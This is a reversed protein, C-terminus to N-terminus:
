EQEGPADLVRRGHRTIAIEDMEKQERRGEEVKWEDMRRDKLKDLSNRDQVAESYDRVSEVLREDAEQCVEDAAQVKEEMKELLYEMNLLHGISGGQRHAEALKARGAQQIELLDAKAQNASDSEKRADVLTLAREQETHRRYELLRGLSFNFVRM